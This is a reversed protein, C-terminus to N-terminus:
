PREQRAILQAHDPAVRLADVPLRLLDEADRGSHTVVASEVHDHAIAWAAGVTDAIAGRAVFGQDSLGSLAQHLLNEEGQFLRECGTVDLLLAKGETGEEISVIPSFAQAWVALRELTRLNADPDDAQAHLGPMLAKAEALTMDHCVGGVAAQRNCLVIRVTGAHRQTVAM